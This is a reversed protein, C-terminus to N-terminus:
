AIVDPVDPAGPLRVAAPRTKKRPLIILPYIKDDATFTASRKEITV